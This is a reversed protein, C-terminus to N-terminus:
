PSIRGSKLEFEGFKLAGVALALEIFEEKYALMPSKPAQPCSYQYLIACKAAAIPPRQGAGLRLM